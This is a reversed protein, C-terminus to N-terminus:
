RNCGIVIKLLFVVGSPLHGRNIIWRVLIKASIYSIKHSKRINVNAQKQQPLKPLITVSACKQLYHQHHPKSVTCFHSIIVLAIKFNFFTALLCKLFHPWYCIKQKIPWSYLLYHQKQNLLEFILLCLEEPTVIM